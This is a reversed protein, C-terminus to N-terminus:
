SPLAERILDILDGLSFPKRIFHDVRGALSSAAVERSHASTVIVPRDPRLRKAEEYVERSSAGPLTIDLLLVDIDDKGGRILDLAASGDGAELVSLGKKRLMKSVAQRLLDEDDVVLITAVRVALTENEVRTIASHIQAAMPEGAPLLIQFTTGNGPASSLRITGHLRDVIGQIVALGLGHSGAAKTTFFPDFVRAQMEPTMGRGTDSVVLQVYRGAATRDAALLSSEPGVSLQGTTVRIVGDRDGIAESANYFLNMVIQRIQSPSARVACLQKGFDTEVTVHKSVSVKLLELMDGVIGSIDILERVETEEGAYAMLQRVIEGGRIAADRINQLEEVPNSGSALETLALESHALVGGLLNNFDHAIGGALAGVTELKQEALHKHHAHKLDTIDLCSGIYGLFVSGTEFRPAGTALVCRYEGDARRLRGETQFSRRADFASSYDTYCRDRDDPHLKTSWGDGVAEDMASGTFTLWGQNFFTCLKDPGSVWIMVPATDAMNRFREESERLAARDLQSQSLREKLMKLVQAAPVAGIVTAEALLIWSAIPPAPFYIWPGLGGIELLAIFLSSGLCAAIMWLMGRYGLLWVASIPMTIYSAVAPSHLGGSLVLGITNLLWTGTLYVLAGQRVLGRRVRDLGVIFTLAQAVFILLAGAKKVAFFPVGVTIELISWILLGLLLAHLIRGRSDDAESAALRPPRVAWRLCRRLASSNGV